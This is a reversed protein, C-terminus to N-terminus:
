LGYDLRPSVALALCRRRRWDTNGWILQMHQVAPARRYQAVIPLFAFLLGIVLYSPLTFPKDLM